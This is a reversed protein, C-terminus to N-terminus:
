VCVRSGVVHVVVPLRMTISCRSRGGGPRLWSPCGGVKRSALPWLLGRGVKRPAKVLQAHGQARLRPPDALQLVNYALASRSSSHNAAVPWACDFWPPGRSVDLTMGPWSSPCFSERAGELVDARSNSLLRPPSVRAQRRGALVFLRCVPVPFPSTVSASRPRSSTTRRTSRGAIPRSPWAAESRTTTAAPL